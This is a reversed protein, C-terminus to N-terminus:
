KPILELHLQKPNLAKLIRDSFDGKWVGIEAGVSNKPLMELLFPRREDPALGLAQAMTEAGPIRKILTKVYLTVM